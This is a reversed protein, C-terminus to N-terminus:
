SSSPDMQATDSDLEDEKSDKEQIGGSDKGRAGGGGGRKLGERKGSGGRKGKEKKPNGRGDRKKKQKLVGREAM